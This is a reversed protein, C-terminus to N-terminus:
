LNDDDHPVSMRYLHTRSPGSVAATMRSHVFIRRKDVTDVNQRRYLIIQKVLKNILCNTDNQLLNRDHTAQQLQHASVNLVTQNFVSHAIPM